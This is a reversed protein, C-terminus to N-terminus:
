VLMAIVYFNAIVLLFALKKGLFRVKQRFQDVKLKNVRM